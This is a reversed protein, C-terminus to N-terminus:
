WNVFLLRNGHFNEELDRVVGTYGPQLSVLAM